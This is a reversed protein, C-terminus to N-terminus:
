HFPCSPSRATVQAILSTHLFSPYCFRCQKLSSLGVVCFTIRRFCSPRPVALTFLWSRFFSAVSGLALVVVLQLMATFLM